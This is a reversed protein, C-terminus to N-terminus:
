AAYVRDEAVRATLFDRFEEGLDSNRFPSLRPRHFVEASGEAAACVLGVNARKFISLNRKVRAVYAADMVVYAYDAFLSYRYAQELARRWNSLKFEVAVSRLLVNGDPSQRHYAVVYDPVGFFGQLETLEWRQWRRFPLIKHLVGEHTFHDKLAEESEFKM